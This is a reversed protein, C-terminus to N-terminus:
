YLLATYQYSVLHDYLVHDCLFDIYCIDVSWLVMGYSVVPIVIVILYHIYHHGTMGLLFPNSSLLSNDTIASAYRCILGLSADTSRANLLCFYTCVANLFLNCLSVISAIINIFIFLLAISNISSPIISLIYLASDIYSVTHHPYCVSVTYLQTRYLVTYCQIRQLCLM